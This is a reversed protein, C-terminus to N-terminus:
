HNTCNRINSAPFTTNPSRMRIIARSRHTRPNGAYHSDSVGGAFPSGNANLSGGSPGAAITVNTGGLPDGCSIGNNSGPQGAGTTTFPHPNAALAAGASLALLCVGLALSPIPLTKM